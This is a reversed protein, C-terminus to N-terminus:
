LPMKECAAGTYQRASSIAATEGTSGITSVESPMPPTPALWAEIMAETPGIAVMKRPKANRSSGIVATWSAPAPRTIAPTSAIENGLFFGAPQGPDAEAQTTRYVKPRNKCVVVARPLGVIFFGM